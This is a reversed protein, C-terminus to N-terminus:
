RGGGACACACGACACACACSHGGGGGGSRTSATPKPPPNTTGTVKETFSSVNGLVKNSFGQVGGVVSAAFDAGPLSKPGGGASTLTKGSSATSITPRGSYTPDYHGWWSPMFVPGTLTRRTRDDYDKDLMTWELNEDFKQSKVEPTNAAAVEAWAKEMISKYYNVSEKRSFGKMKDSVSRVLAITMDQLLKRRGAPTKDGFAKLFDTEYQHLDEPAKEAFSLELPDRKTVEAGGKKIVGFLIMTMVKDLPQEMLIAAEVATLGRKIGHGEISIKPPLYNLKRRNTNIVSFIPIGLFIAAFCLCPLSSGVFSILGTIAAIIGGSSSSSSTTRIASAPVYTAPFSTGFDYERTASVNAAWTYTVRGEDDLVTQPESPFGSPSAHWRAEEPKVGPPLHFSVSLDTSGTVYKSGFWTPAFVGSAYTQDSSDPSLMNNIGGVYVHVTGTQGPQIAYAGMDVAFGYSGEGQYDSSLSVRNEGVEAYAGNTTGALPGTPTESSGSLPTAMPVATPAPASIDFYSNPMGVDVFDIVHGGSNNTFTFQYDLSMSGDANWYVNVVERDLSFLYSQALAPSVLLLALILVLAITLLRKKM